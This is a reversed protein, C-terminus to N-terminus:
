RARVPDGDLRPLELTAVAGPTGDRSELTLSGGHAEAIQRSLPLGIGSGGPKTTFFPVFLNEAGGVGPGDDIVRIRVGLATEEAVVAVRGSPGAADLGNQVLNVLAQELLDPDLHAALGDDVSAVVRGGPELAAVRRLLPALPTRALRPRPVRALRGYQALFRDLSASRAEIVELGAVVDERAPGAPLQAEVIARVTGALSKMPALSNKVEHGIVRVLRQWAEREEARLARRVDAVLLLHQSLGSERFTGHTVQWRGSRGAVADVVRTGEEALLLPELGLETARRGPLESAPRGLLHAAAPNALRVEGRGDVALVAVDLRAVLQDVLAGAELARLRQERLTEALGNVERSLDGFADGPRGGRARVSFDETRLAEVVNVLGRLPQTAVAHAHSAAAAFAIVAIAVLCARLFLAVDLSLVLAVTALLGPAALLALARVHRREPGPSGRPRGEAM